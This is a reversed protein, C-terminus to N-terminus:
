PGLCKIDTHPRWIATDGTSSGSISAECSCILSSCGAQAWIELYDKFLQITPRTPGPKHYQLRHSSTAKVLNELIMLISPRVLSLNHNQLTQLQIAVISIEPIKLIYAMRHGNFSSAKEPGFEHNQLSQLLIAIILIGPEQCHLGNQAM